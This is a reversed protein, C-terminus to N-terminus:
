VFGLKLEPKAFYINNDRTLIKIKVATDASDVLAYAHMKKGFDSVKSFVNGALEKQGVYKLAVEIPTM